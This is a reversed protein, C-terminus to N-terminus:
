TAGAPKGADHGASDERDELRDTGARCPGTAGEGASAQALGKEENGNEVVRKLLSAVSNLARMGVRLEALLQRANEVDIDLEQGELMEVGQVIGYAAAVTAEVVRRADFRRGRNRGAEPLAIKNARLLRTLHGQTFQQDKAIQALSHGAALLRKIREIRTEVKVPQSVGNVNIVYTRAELTGAAVMENRVKRVSTRSIGCQESIQQNSRTSDVRLAAEIEKIKDATLPTFLTM